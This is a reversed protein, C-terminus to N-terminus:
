LKECTVFATDAQETQELWVDKWHTAALDHSQISHLDFATSLRKALIVDKGPFM